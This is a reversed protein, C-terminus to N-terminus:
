GSRLSLLGTSALLLAPVLILGRLAFGGWTIRLGAARCRGAWLLTALSAWPTILPGLNVGILLATGRILGDAVPELALYAPLNNILNAAVAGTVALRALDPRGLGTGSLQVLVAPLGHDHALQVLVFLATVGVVLRWPVLQGSRLAALFLDRRRVVTTVTIVVAAIVAAVEVPVGAVIMPGLAACVVFAVILLSRDPAPDVPSSEYRGPLSRRFMIMLVAITILVAVVAVPWAFGAFDRASLDLRQLALLNTLNSSPLFLSATNALWVTTYAFLLRDVGLRRALALAVPTVLVATTDLSLVATVLVAAGVILLWLLLVSGGGLRAAVAAIRAFVGIRDSLEALVTMAVLFILIPVVREGLGILDM